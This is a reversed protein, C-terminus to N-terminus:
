LFAEKIVPHHFKSCIRVQKSQKKALEEEYRKKLKEASKSQFEKREKTKAEYLLRWKFAVHKQKMRRIVLMMHEVGFQQEYFRKWLDNTVPTLDVPETSNEIHMLQDVTCHPLIGELLHMELGGVDGIYRLNAIATGICLKVLSPAKTSMLM